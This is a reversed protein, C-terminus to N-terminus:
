QYPEWEIAINTFKVPLGKDNYQYDSEPYNQNDSSVQSWASTGQNWFFKKTGTTQIAKESLIINEQFLFSFPVIDLGTLRIGGTAKGFYDFGTQKWQIFVRGTYYSIIAAVSDAKKMTAGDRIERTYAVQQLNHEADYSFSYRHTESADGTFDFLRMVTLQLRGESDYEFRYDRGIAGNPLYRFAGNIRNSNLTFLYKWNPDPNGNAFYTQAKIEVNSYTIQYSGGTFDIRTLRNENDYSFTKKDSGDLTSKIRYSSGPQPDNDKDKKCALFASAFLTALISM